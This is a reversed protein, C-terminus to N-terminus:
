LKRIEFLPSLPLNNLSIKGLWSIYSVLSEEFFKGKGKSIMQFYYKRARYSKEAKTNLWFV